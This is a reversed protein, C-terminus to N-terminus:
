SIYLDFVVQGDHSNLGRDYFHHCHSRCYSQTFFVFGAFMYSHCCELSISFTSRIMSHLRPSEIDRLTYRGLRVRATKIGPIRLVHSSNDCVYLTTIRQAAEGGRKLRLVSDGGRFSARSFRSQFKGGVCGAADIEASVGVCGANLWRM